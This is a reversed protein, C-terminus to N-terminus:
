AEKIAKKRGFLRAPQAKHDPFVSWGTLKALGAIARRM